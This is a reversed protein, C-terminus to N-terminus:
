AFFNDSTDRLDRGFYVSTSVLVPMMLVGFVILAFLSAELRILSFFGILALGFAFTLTFGDLVLNRIAGIAIKM